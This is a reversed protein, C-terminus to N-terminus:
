GFVLPIRIEEIKNQFFEQKFLPCSIMKDSIM